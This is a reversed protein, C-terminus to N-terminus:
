IDWFLLEKLHNKELVKKQAALASIFAKLQSFDRKETQTLLFFQLSSDSKQSM